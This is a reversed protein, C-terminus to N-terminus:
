INTIKFCPINELSTFDVLHPIYYIMNYITYNYIIYYVHLTNYLYVYMYYLVYMYYTYVNKLLQTPQCSLSILSTTFICVHLINQLYVYM